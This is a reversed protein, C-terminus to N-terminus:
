VSTASGMRDEWSMWRDGRPRLVMYATSAEHAIGPVRIDSVEPRYKAWFGAQGTGNSHWYGLEESPKSTQPTSMVDITEYTVIGMLAWLARDQEALAYQLKM